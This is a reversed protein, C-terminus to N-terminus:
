IVREPNLTLIMRMTESQLTELAWKLSYAMLPVSVSLVLLGVAVKLQFSLIFINTQPAVRALLALALNTCFLAVLVPAAVKIGIIYISAMFRILLEISAGSLEFTTLPVAHFSAFVAEIIQHHGNIALFIMLAMLEKLEGILTPSINTPDFLLATQYGMEIDIIGGALRAAFFVTNTVFGILVGLTFEKFVLIVMTWLHFEIPPQVHWFATNCIIALIVAMMIKVQPIVTDSKFLPATVMFGMIRIFILTGILFKGTLLYITNEDLM